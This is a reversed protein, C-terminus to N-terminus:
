NKFLARLHSLIPETSSVEREEEGSLLYTVSINSKYNM